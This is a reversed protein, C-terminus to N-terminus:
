RVLDTADPPAYEITLVRLGSRRLALFRERLRAADSGPRVKRYRRTAFDYRVFLGEALAADLHPRVAPYLALGQNLVLLSDPFRRRLGAIIQAMAHAAGRWTEPDREELWPGVDATDLFLGDFGRALLRAARAFVHAQWRPDRPDVRWAGPWDPNPEVLWPARAHRPWAPDHEAIEGLSLYALVLRRGNGSLERPPRRVAADLIAIDFGELDAPALDEAYCCVFRLPTDPDRLRERLGPTARCGAAVCLMGLLAAIPHAAWRM